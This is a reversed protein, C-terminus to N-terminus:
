RGMQKKVMETIQAATLFQGNGQGLQQQYVQHAQQNKILQNGIAAYLDHMLKDPTTDRLNVETRVNKPLYKGNDFEKWGMDVIAVSPHDPNDPVVNFSYGAAKLISDSKVSQGRLISGFVYIGPNYRIKNLTEGSTEPSLELEIKGYGALTKLATGVVGTKDSDKVPQLLVQLTPRGNVGLPKIFATSFYDKLTDGGQSMLNLIAKNRDDDKSLEGDLYIHTHNAQQAAENILHTAVDPKGKGALDYRVVFGMKHTESQYEPLNPVIKANLKDRLKKQEESTGYKEDIGGPQYIFQEMEHGASSWVPSYNGRKGNFEEVTYFRGDVKVGQGGTEFKGESYFEAVERATLKRYERARPDFLTIPKFDKVMDDVGVVDDQGDKRTLIKSYTKRDAVMEQRILEKRRNELEDHERIAQSATMYGFLMNVDDQGLGPGGEKLKSELTSRMNDLVKSRLDYFSAPTASDKGTLKKTLDRLSARDQNSLNEGSLDMSYKRMASMYNVSDDLSVGLGELVKVGTSTDFLSSHAVGWRQVQREQYVQYPNGVKTVDTADVAEIHGASEPDGPSIYSGGGYSGGGSIGGGGGGWSSGGGFGFGDDDDGLRPGQKAYPHEAIWRNLEYQKGKLLLEQNKIDLDRQYRAIDGKEKWVPDINISVHENAARASAWGNVARQRMVNTFYYDPNKQVGQQFIAATGDSAKNKADKLLDDLQFQQKLLEAYVEGQKGDLPKDSKQYPLMDQTVKAYQKQLLDVRSDLGKKYEAGIGKAIEDIAQQENLAPNERMKQRVREEKDVVGMVHFQDQFQDGLMNDAFTAFAQQSREGNERKILYPGDAGEWIVELKVKEAQENLYAKMNQFPVFRRKELKAYKNPDRGASQLKELGNQLYLVAADSYQSRVKEDQSDRTALARQMESQYWKTTGADQLIMNDQWFPAFVNEATQQNEALSLDVSSLNKLQQQAELVFKDRTSKNMADSLPANLVQNYTNKVSAFGQEYRAQLTTLAKQMTGFDPTFPTIQPLVDSIGRLYTAM